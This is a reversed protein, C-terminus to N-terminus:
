IDATFIKIGSSDALKLADREVKVDFALIVGYLENHELTTSAKMVDKKHVPGINIGLYPIQSQKLFEYQSKVRCEKMALPDLLAKVHTQIPGEYGAAVISVAEKLKANVLIIDITTGLGQVEKSELVTAQPESRFALREKRHNQCFNVMYWMMNGM